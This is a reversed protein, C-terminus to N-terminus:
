ITECNLRHTHTIHPFQTSKAPQVQKRAHLCLRLSGLLSHQSKLQEHVPLFLLM